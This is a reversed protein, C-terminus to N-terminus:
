VVVDHAALREIVPIVRRLEEHAGIRQAGPRTSEGGVDIIDAGAAVQELAHAVAVDVDVYRGGDSFSDPTVNLVSMVLTRQVGALSDPLGRPHM